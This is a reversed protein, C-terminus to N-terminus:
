RACLKSCSSLRPKRRRHCNRCVLMGLPTNTFCHHNASLLRVFPICPLSECSSCCKPPIPFVAALTHEELFHQALVAMRQTVMPALSVDPPPDSFDISGLFDRGSLKKNNKAAAQLESFASIVTTGTIRPLRALTYDRLRIGSKFFPTALIEEVTASPGLLAGGPSEGAGM